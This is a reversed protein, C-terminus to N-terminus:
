KRSPAWNSFKKTVKQVCIARAQEHVAQTSAKMCTLYDAIYKEFVGRAKGPEAALRNVLARPGVEFHQSDIPYNWYGGWTLFGNEAFIDIVDEAMGSRVPKGARYTYRNLYQKTSQEPQVSVRNHDDIDIFPNQVPNIDIALGFAHKSWETGGTMPRANFGSTNNATMSAKDSGNFHEIPLVSQMPVKRQYLAEFIREVRHAVSNMVVVAGQKVEGNFDYHRVHVTSLRDCQIPSENSIAGKERMVKCQQPTIPEVSALASTSLLLPLVVISSLIKEPM